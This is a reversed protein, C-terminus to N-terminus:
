TCVAYTFGQTNADFAAALRRHMGNAGEQLLIRVPCAVPPASESSDDGSPGDSGHGQSQLIQWHWM